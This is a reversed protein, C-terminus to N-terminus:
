GTLNWDGTIVALLTVEGYALQKCLLECAPLWSAYKGVNM